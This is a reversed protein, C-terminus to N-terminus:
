QTSLIGAFCVETITPTHIVPDSDKVQKEKRHSQGEIRETETM